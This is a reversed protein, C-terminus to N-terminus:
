EDAGGLVAFWDSYWPEQQVKTGSRAVDIGELRWTGEPLDPLPNVFTRTECGPPRVGTGGSRYPVLQNTHKERWFSNGEVGIDKGTRNCKTGEITVTANTFVVPTLVRQPNVNELPEYPSPRFFISLLIISTLLLGSGVAFAVALILSRSGNGWLQRLLYINSRHQARTTAV